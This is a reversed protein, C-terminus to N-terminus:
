ALGAEERTLATMFFNHQCNWRPESHQITLVGGGREFERKEEDTFYPSGAKKTLAWICEKHSNAQLPAGQYVWVDDADEGFGVEEALQDELNQRFVNQMTNLQTLAENKFNEAQKITEDILTPLQKGTAVSNIFKEGVGVIFKDAVGDLKSYDMAQIAKIATKNFGSLSTVDFLGKVASTRETAIAIYDDLAKAVTEFYGAKKIIGPLQSKILIAKDINEHTFAIIGDEIDFDAVAMVEATIERISKDLATEFNFM